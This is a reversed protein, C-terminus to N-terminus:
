LARQSCLLPRSPRHLKVCYEGRGGRRKKGLFALVKGEELDKQMEPGSWLAATLFFPPSAKVGGKGVQNKVLLGIRDRRELNRKNDPLSAAARQM